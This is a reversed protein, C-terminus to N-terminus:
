QDNNRGFRGRQIDFVQKAPLRTENKQILAFPCIVVPKINIFFGKMLGFLYILVDIRGRM